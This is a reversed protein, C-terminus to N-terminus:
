PAGRRTPSDGEALGTGTKDSRAEMGQANGTGWCAECQEQIQVQEQIAVPGTCGRGGCEWDSGGCCGERMEVGIGVVWGDGCCDPCRASPIGDRLPSVPVPEVATARGPPLAGIM